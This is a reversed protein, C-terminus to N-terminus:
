LTEGKLPVHASYVIVLRGNPLLNIKGYLKRGDYEFFFEYVEGPPTMGEVCNGELQDDGLAAGLAKYMEFEFSLPFTAEWDRKARMTVVIRSSDCSELIERVTDRWQKPILM